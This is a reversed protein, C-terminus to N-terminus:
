GVLHMHRRRSAVGPRIVSTRLRKIEHWVEDNMCESPLEVTMTRRPNLSLVVYYGARGDPSSPDRYLEGIEEVIDDSSQPSRHAPLVPM